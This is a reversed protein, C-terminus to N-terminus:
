VYYDVTSSSASVVFEGISGNTSDELDAPLSDSPAGFADSEGQGSQSFDAVESGALQLGSQELMERLRPMAQEIAERAELSQVSFHVRAQDGETAIKIDLRGLEPPNLQLSAEPMGNKVMLSVRGLFEGRWNPDSVPTTLTTPVSVKPGASLEAMGAPMQISGTIPQSQTVAPQKAQSPELAKLIDSIEIASRERAVAPAGDLAAFDARAVTAPEAVRSLRALEQAAMQPARGDSPVNNRPIGMPGDDALALKSLGSLNGPVASAVGTQAAAIAVPKDAISAGSLQGTEANAPLHAVAAPLIQPPVNEASESLQSASTALKGAAPALPNSTDASLTELSPAAKDTSLTDLSPLTKDTPLSELSFNTKDLSQGDVGAPALTAPSLLSRVAEAPWTVSSEPLDKGGPQLVNGGEVLSEQGDPTESEVGPLRKQANLIDGFPGGSADEEGSKTIRRLGESEGTHVSVNELIPLM